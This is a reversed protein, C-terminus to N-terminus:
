DWVKGDIKPGPPDEHRFGTGDNDWADDTWFYWPNLILIDGIFMVIGVITYVPIIDQLLAGHVWANGSYLGNVTDDWGRSLRRPGSMCALSACLVLALALRGLARSRMM